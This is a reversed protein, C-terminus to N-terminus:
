NNKEPYNIRKYENDENIRNNKSNDICLHIGNSYKFSNDDNLLIYNIRQEIIKKLYPKIENFNPYEEVNDIMEYDPFEQKLTDYSFLSTEKDWVKKCDNIITDIKTTSLWNNIANSIRSHEDTKYSINVLM